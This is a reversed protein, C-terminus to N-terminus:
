PCLIRHFLQTRSRVGIKRYIKWLHNKVTKESIGLASSIERNSKGGILGDLVQRERKSIRERADRSEVLLPPVSAANERKGTEFLREAADRLASMERALGDFRDCAAGMARALRIIENEEGDRPRALVTDLIRALDRPLEPSAAPAHAAGEVGLQLSSEKAM